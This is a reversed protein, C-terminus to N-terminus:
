GGGTVGQGALVERLARIAQHARSRVTGEPIGLVRAAEIATRDHFYLQVVVERRAPPLCALARGLAVRTLTGDIRDAAPVRDAVTGLGVEEPHARRRRLHDILIRRAVTFLWSRVSDGDSYLDARHRWARLLTEQVIDEAWARDRGTAQVAFGLLAPVHQEYLLRFARERGSHSRDTPEAGAMTLVTM